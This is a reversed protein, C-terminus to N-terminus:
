LWGFAGATLMGYILGDINQRILTGLPKRYWILTPWLALAYGYVGRRRAAALIAEYTIV